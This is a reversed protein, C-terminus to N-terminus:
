KKELHVDLGAEESIREMAPLTEESPMQTLHGYLGEGALGDRFDVIVGVLDPRDSLPGLGMVWACAYRSCAKPMDPTAHVSCGASAKLPCVQKAAKSIEEIEFHDCCATCGACPRKIGSNWRERLNQLADM